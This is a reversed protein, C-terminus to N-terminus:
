KGAPDLTLEAAPLAARLGRFVQHVADSRKSTWFVLDITQKEATLSVVSVEPSPIQLVDTSNRTAELASAEIQEFDGNGTTAIRVTVREQRYATRNTIAETFMITNPIVVQQSSVTRLVTVRLRVDEVTGTFTRVDIRDGIQFPRELLLYLGAFLNRLVDQLALSIALGIAGILAVLATWNIGLINLITIAALGIIAFTVLRDTLLALGVDGRARMVSRHTADRLRRGLIMAILVVVLAVVIHFVVAALDRQLWVQLDPLVGNM